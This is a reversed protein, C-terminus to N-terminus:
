KEMRCALESVVGWTQAPTAAPMRIQRIIQAPTIPVNQVDGVWDGFVEGNWSVAVRWGEQLRGSIHGGWGSVAPRLEKSAASFMQSPTKPMTAETMMVSM